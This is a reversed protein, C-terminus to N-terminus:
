KKFSEYINNFTNLNKQSSFLLEVLERNKKVSEPLLSLKSLIFNLKSALAESNNIKYLEINFGIEQVYKNSPNDPLIPYCGSAFAELLAISLGDTPSTTIYIQSEEYYKPILNYSIAGLFKIRDQMKLDCSLKELEQRADGDGIIQTEIDSNIKSLAKILVDIRYKELLHRTSIIKVSTELNFKFIFKSIDIGYQITKIKQENIKYNIVREKMEKSPLTILDASKLAKNVFHYELKSKYSDVLIDSGHCTLIFPHFKSKASLYGYNTAYHAHILDPKIIKM